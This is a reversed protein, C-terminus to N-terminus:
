NNTFVLKGNVLKGVQSLGEKEYIVQEEDIYFEKNEYVFEKVVLEQDEFEEDSPKEIPKEEVQKEVPKVVNSCENKSEVNKSKKPARKKKEQETGAEAFAIALEIREKENNSPTDVIIPTDVVPTDVIIPAEVVPTDVIIPAEVVAKKSARKKKTPASSDSPTDVVQEVIPADVVPTDVVSADVVQEVVPVDKVAAKKPARKKKPADTSPADVVQEVIPADVVVQETVQEVVPAVSKKPARKKKIPASSDSPASVDTVQEVQADIVQEVQADTSPADTVQESVQADKVVAKKPARKKKPPASSDTPAEKEQSSEKNKEDNIGNALNVLDSVINGPSAIIKSKATLAKRMMSLKETMEKENFEEFKECIVEIKDELKFIEKMKNMVEEDNMSKSLLWMGFSLYSKIKAPIERRVVTKTNTEVNTNTNM